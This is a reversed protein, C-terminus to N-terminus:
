DFGSVKTVLENLCYITESKILEVIYLVSGKEGYLNGCAYFEIYIGIGIADPMWYTFEKRYAVFKAHDFSQFEILQFILVCYVGM